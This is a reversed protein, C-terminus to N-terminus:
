FKSHVFLDEDVVALLHLFEEQSCLLVVHAVLDLATRRAFIEEVDCILQRALLLVAGEWAGDGNDIEWFVNPSKKEVLIWLNLSSSSAVDLCGSKETKQPGVRSVKERTVSCCTFFMMTLAGLFDHMSSGTGVYRTCSHRSSKIGVMVAMM